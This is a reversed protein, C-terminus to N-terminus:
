RADALEKATQEIVHYRNLKDIKITETVRGCWSVKLEVPKESEGLGFVHRPDIAAVVADAEIQAGNTLRVAHVRDGEIGIHAVETETRFTAGAQTAVNRIADRFAGSGGRPFYAGDAFHHLVM